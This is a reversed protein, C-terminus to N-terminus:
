GQLDNVNAQQKGSSSMQLKFSKEGGGRDYFQM